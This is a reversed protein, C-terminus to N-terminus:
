FHALAAWAAAGLVAGLVVLWVLCGTASQSIARIATNKAIM